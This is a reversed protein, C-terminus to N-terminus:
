KKGQEPLKVQYIVIAAKGRSERQVQTAGEIGLQSHGGKTAIASRFNNGASHVAHEIADIEIAIDM